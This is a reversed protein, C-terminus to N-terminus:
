SHPICWIKHIIEHLSKWLLSVLTLECDEPLVFWSTALRICFCTTGQRFRERMFQLRYPMTESWSQLWEHKPKTKKGQWALFCLSNQIVLMRSHSLWVASPSLFSVPLPLLFVSLFLNPTHKLPDHLPLALSLSLPVSHSMHSSISLCVSFPLRPVSDVEVKAQRSTRPIFSTVVFVLVSVCM